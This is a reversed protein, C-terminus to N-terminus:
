RDIKRKRATIDLRKEIGKFHDGMLRTAVSSDRRRVADLIRRHDELIQLEDYDKGLSAKEFYGEIEANRFAFWFINCLELLMKNGVPAYLTEHFLRDKDHVAKNDRILQEWEILIDECRRVIDDNVKEVVKPMTATELMRRIEYLEVIARSDLLLGYTFIELFADLNFERLFLGNGHRVEVIGIGELARVAERVSGRSIELETAIKGESPLADGPKLNGEGILTHMFERVLTTQYKKAM